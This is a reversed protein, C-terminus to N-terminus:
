QPDTDVDIVIRAPAVAADAYYCTWMDAPTLGQITNGPEIVVGNEYIYNAYSWVAGVVQNPDMEQFLIQFDPLGLAHLGLTDVLMQGEAGDAINFFRVNLLGNLVDPEEDTVALVYAFPNVLKDSAGFHVAQPRTAKILAVVFKQFYGVRQQHELGRSMMDTVLFEYRCQQVVDAAEPWHWSQTLAAAVSEPDFQPEEALLVAGQAPVRADQYQVSYDPFFYLLANGENDAEDVRAFENRLEATIRAQDLSIPQAFLFRVHLMQPANEVSEESSANAPDNEPNIFDSSM